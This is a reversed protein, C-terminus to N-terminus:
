RMVRVSRHVDAAAAQGAEVRAERWSETARLGDVGGRMPNRGGGAIGRAGFRVGRPDAARRRAVTSSRRGQRKSAKSTKSRPAGPPAGERATWTAGPTRRRSRDVRPTTEAITMAPAVSVEADQPAEVAVEPGGFHSTPLWRLARGARRAKAGDEGEPRASTPATPRGRRRDITQSVQRELTERESRHGMPGGEVRERASSGAIRAHELARRAPASRRTARARTMTGAGRLRSRSPAGGLGRPGPTGEHPQKTPRRRRSQGLPGRTVGPPAPRRLGRTSM